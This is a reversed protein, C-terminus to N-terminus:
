WFAISCWSLHPFCNISASFSLSNNESRFRDTLSSTWRVSFHSVLSISTWFRSDNFFSKLIKWNFSSRSSDDFSIEVRWVESSSIWALIFSNFSAIDEESEEIESAWFETWDAWFFNFFNIDLESFALVVKEVWLESKSASIWRLCRNFVWITWNCDVAEESFFSIWFNFRSILLNWFFYWIARSFLIIRISILSFIWDKFSIWEFDSFTLISCCIWSMLFCIENNNSSFFVLCDWISNIMDLIAGISVFNVCFEKSNDEKCFVIFSDDWFSWDKVLCSWFM